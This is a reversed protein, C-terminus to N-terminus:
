RRRPSRTSGLEAQACDDVELDEARVRRRNAVAELRHAFSRRRARRRRGGRSRAARATCRCREVEVACAGLEPSGIAVCRASLSASVSNRRVPVPRRPLREGLHEHRREPVVPIRASASAPRSSEFTSAACQTCPPRRLLDLQEGLVVDRDRVTRARVPDEAAADRRERRKAVAPMRTHMAVSLGAEVGDNSMNSSIRAAITPARARSPRGSASVAASASSSAVSPPARASPSSSESPESTGPFCASRVTRESASVDNM